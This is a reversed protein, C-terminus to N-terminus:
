MDKGSTRTLHTFPIHVANTNIGHLLIILHSECCLTLSAYESIQHESLVFCVHCVEAIQLLSFQYLSVAGGLSASNNLFTTNHGLMLASSSAVVASDQLHGQFM